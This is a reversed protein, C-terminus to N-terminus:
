KRWLILIGSFVFLPFTIGYFGLNVISFVFTVTWILTGLIFFSKRLFDKGTIRGVFYLVGYTVPIIGTLLTMFIGHFDPNAHIIFPITLLGLIAFVLDFIKKMSKNYWLSM